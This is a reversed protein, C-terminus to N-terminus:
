EVRLETRVTPMCKYYYMYILCGAWRKAWTSGFFLYISLVSAFWMDSLVMRMEQASCNTVFSLDARNLSIACDEVERNICTPGENVESMNCINHDATKSVYKFGKGECMFKVLEEEDPSGWKLQYYLWIVHILCGPLFSIAFITSVRIVWVPLVSSFINYFSEDSIYGNQWSM